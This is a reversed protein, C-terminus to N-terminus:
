EKASLKYEPYWVSQYKGEVDVFDVLYTPDYNIYEARGAVTGVRFTSKIVVDQMMAFAFTNDM